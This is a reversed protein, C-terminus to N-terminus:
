KITCTEPLAPRELFRPFTIICFQNRCMVSRRWFLYHRGPLVMNPLCNRQKMLLQPEKTAMIQRKLERWVKEEQFVTM